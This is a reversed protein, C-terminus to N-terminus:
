VNKINNYISIEVAWKIFGISLNYFTGIKANTKTFEIYPSIIYIDENCLKGKWLSIYYRNTKTELIKLNKYM